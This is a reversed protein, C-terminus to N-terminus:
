QKEGEHVLSALVREGFRDPKAEKSRVAVCADSLQKIMLVSGIPLCIAGIPGLANSGWSFVYCIFGVYLFLRALMGTGTRPPSMRFMFYLGFASAIMPVSGWWWGAWEIFAWLLRNASAAAKVGRSAWDAIGMLLPVFAAMVLMMVRWVLSM